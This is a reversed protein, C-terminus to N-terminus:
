VNKQQKGANYIDIIWPCGTAACHCSKTDFTILTFDVTSPLKRSRYLSCPVAAATLRSHRSRLVVLLPNELCCASRASCRLTPYITPCITQMLSTGLLYVHIGPLFLTVLCALCTIKGIGHEIAVEETTAHLLYWKSYTTHEASYSPM